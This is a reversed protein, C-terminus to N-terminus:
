LFLIDRAAVRAQEPYDIFGLTRLRGIANTFGKSNLNGYGARAALDQRALSNPHVNVLERIIRGSSGGLQAILRDQLEESSRPKEVPMAAAHGADTLGLSGNGPYVILGGSRLAGMANTFGKSNLNTYGALFAVQVRPPEAVGLAALEALADLV